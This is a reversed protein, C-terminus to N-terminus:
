YLPNFVGNKAGERNSGGGYPMEWSKHVSHDVALAIGNPSLGRM